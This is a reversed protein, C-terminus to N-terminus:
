NQYENNETQVHNMYFGLTRGSGNPNLEAEQFPPDCTLRLWRYKRWVPADYPTFALRIYVAEGSNTGEGGPITREEVIPEGGPSAEVVVRLQRDRLFGFVTMELEEASCPLAVSWHEGTWIRGDHISIPALEPVIEEHFKQQSNFLMLPSAILLPLGVVRILLTARPNIQASRASSDSAGDSQSTLGHEALRNWVMGMFIFFLIEIIRMYFIYQFMGYMLIGLLSLTLAQLIRKDPSPVHLRHKWAQGLLLLVSATIASAALPSREVSLHLWFNHATGHDEQWFDAFPVFICTYIYHHMGNGFGWPANGLLFFSSYFYYLRDRYQLVSVLRRSITHNTMLDAAIVLVLCGASIGLIAKINERFFHRWAVNQRFFVQFGILAVMAFSVLWLARQLMLIGCLIFLGLLPLAVKRTLQKSGGLLLLIPATMVMLQALWGSHQAFSMLRRTGHIYNLPEWGPRYKRLELLGFYDLLGLVCAIVMGLCLLGLFTQINDRTGNRRWYDMLGICMLTQIPVFWGLAGHTTSFLANLTFHTVPNVDPNVPQKALETVFYPFVNLSAALTLVLYLALCYGSVVLVLNTHQATSTSQGSLGPNEGESPNEPKQPSRVLRILQLLYDRFLLLLISNTIFYIGTSDNQNYLLLPALFALAYMLWFADFLGLLLLWFISHYIHYADYSLAPGVIIGMIGGTALCGALLGLAHILKSM